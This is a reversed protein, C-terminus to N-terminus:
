GRTEKDDKPMIRYLVTVARTADGDAEVTQAAPAVRYRLALERLVYPDTSSTYIPHKPLNTDIVGQALFDVLQRPHAPVHNAFRLGYRGLQEDTFFARYWPMYVFNSGFVLVDPRERRVAQRYWCGFIDHDGGTLLISNEPMAEKSLPLITYSYEEAARDAARDCATWNCAAIVAPLLAFAYAAEPPIRRAGGMRAAVAMIGRSIGLFACVWGFWLFFLYYDRIDRITYLFLVGVNQFAVLFAMVFLFGGTRAWCALGAVILPLLLCLFAAAPASPRAFQRNWERVTAVVQPFSAFQGTLDAAAQGVICATYRAYSDATFSRDPSPKLFYHQLYETGRVHSIFAAATSPNGWNIAPRAAARLPLYLYISLCAAMVACAIGVARLRLAAPVHRLGAVAAIAAPVLLFVSMRHHALGLGAMAAMLVLHRVRGGRAFGDAALLFVLTILLQLSYVETVVANQWHFRLFASAAAACASAILITKPHRGAMIGEAARHIILFGAAAAAAAALAVALGILISKTTKM